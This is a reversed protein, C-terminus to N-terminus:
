SKRKAVSDRFAAVKAPAVYIYEFIALAFETLTTVDDETVSFSTFHAGLNGLTRSADMMEALQEPIIGEAGLWKIQDRLTRGQAHQDEAIAELVRRIGVAALGPALSRAAVVEDFARAIDQPVEPPAQLRRPFALASEWGGDRQNWEDYWLSMGDCTGCKLIAWWRYEYVPQENQDVAVPVNYDARHLLEQPARNGCRPCPAVKPPGVEFHPQFRDIV